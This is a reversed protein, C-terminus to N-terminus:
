GVDVVVEGLGNRGVEACAVFPAKSFVEGDRLSFFCQLFPRVMIEYKWDRLPLRRRMVLRARSM